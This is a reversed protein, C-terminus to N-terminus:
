ADFSLYFHAFPHDQQMHTGMIPSLYLRAKKFSFVFSLVVFELGVV